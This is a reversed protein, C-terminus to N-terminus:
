NHSKLERFFNSVEHQGNLAAYSSATWGKEFDGLEVDAGLDILCKILDINGSASALMLPTVGRGDQYNPNAGASILQKAKEEDGDWCSDMLLIDINAEM